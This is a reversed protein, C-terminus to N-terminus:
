RQEEANRALRPFLVAGASGAERGLAAAELAPAQRLGEALGAVVPAPTFPFDSGYLLREPGTVALLGDLAVPLPMGALDYYLRGLAGPVDVPTGLLASMGAVRHAIAPLVAGAHPIIWRIDPYRDLTGSLALDVVCRSTDFLFEVMPRPRGMATLDSCPPSTPHLTVVAARADLEALVPAFAPDALYRGHHNTHLTIADANLEDFARELEALAGDVDPLPLTAALGFRDPMRAVVAAGEDNVHRALDRASRNEATSDDGFHVGPSSVSLVAAAVGSADMVEVAAEASWAPLAPMGDPRGHGAARCMEAYHPTLYHAHVDLWGSM